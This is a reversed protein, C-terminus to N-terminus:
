RDRTCRAPAACTSTSAPMPRPPRSTSRSKAAISRKPSRGLPRSRVPSARRWFRVATSRSSTTRARAAFGVELVGKSGSRAHFVARRRGEGHADVLDAVPSMSAPRACRRSWSTASGPAIIPLTQWHQVACGGCVGFHPCIPAIREASPQMSAPSAPPPRSPRRSARGRRNRGAAHRPRLDTRGAGDAIGDGRHGLRDIVLREIM